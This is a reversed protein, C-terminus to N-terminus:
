RAQVVQTLTKKILSLSYRNKKIMANLARYDVCFRLGGGPKRVFLILAAAPSSSVRIFGKTLLESLIKRLVLLMERSMGYLSSWSLEQLKGDAGSEIEIRHDVGPRLSLLKDARKRDFVDLFQWYKKPLITRSDTLEKKSLAKNIDAM